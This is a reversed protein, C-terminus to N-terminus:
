YAPSCAPSEAPACDDGDSNPNCATATRQPIAAALAAWKPSTVIQALPTRRVNGATMMGGSMVCGAVSGDPLVAARGHACHGCLEDLRDAAPTSTDDAGHRCPEDASHAGAGRGIERLRDTRIDEVGLARLEAEAQAIRQGEHVHVVAARLPIGYALARTINARTKTYSHRHRTIAEHEDPQDSYYSTALTVGPQRLVPWLLERVHILNSFVEVQMGRQVAHDILDPLDPHLFPEGGIFQARRAGLECAGDIVSKWDSSTMTGHGRRPGSDNYCHTCNAQCARTLDLAIRELPAGTRSETPRELTVSM